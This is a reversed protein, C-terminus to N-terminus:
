GAYCRPREVMTYMVCAGVGLAGVFRGFSSRNKLWAVATELAWHKQSQSVWFTGTRHGGGKSSGCRDGSMVLCLEPVDETGVGMNVGLQSWAKKFAIVVWGMVWPVEGYCGGRWAESM